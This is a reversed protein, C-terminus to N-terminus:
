TGTVSPATLGPGPELSESADSGGSCSHGTEQPFASRLITSRRNPVHQPPDSPPSLHLRAIGCTEHGAQCVIGRIPEKRTASGCDGMGPEPERCEGQQQQDGTTARAPPGWRHHARRRLGFMQHGAGVRQGSRSPFMGGAGQVFPHYTLIGAVRGRSRREITEPAELRIRCAPELVVAGRVLGEGAQQGVERLAAPPSVGSGPPGREAVQQGALLFGGSEFHLELPTLVFGGSQLSLEFRALVFGGSERPLELRALFFGEAQLGLNSLQPADVETEFLPPSPEVFVIRVPSGSPSNQCTSSHVSRDGSRRRLRSRGDTDRRSACGRDLTRTSPGTGSCPARPVSSSPNADARRGTAGRPSVSLM